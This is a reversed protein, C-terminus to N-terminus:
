REHYTVNNPQIKEEKAQKIEKTGQSLNSIILSQIYVVSM